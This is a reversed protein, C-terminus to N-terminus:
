ENDNVKLEGIKQKLVKLCDHCIYDPEYKVLFVFDNINTTGHDQTYATVAERNVFSIENRCWLELINNNLIILHTKYKIM